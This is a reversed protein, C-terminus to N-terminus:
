KIIAIVKTIATRSAAAFITSSKDAIVVTLYHILITSIVRIKRNGAESTMAFTNTTAAATANERVLCKGQQMIM